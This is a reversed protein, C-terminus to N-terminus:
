ECKELLKEDNGGLACGLAVTDGFEELESFKTTRSLTDIRCFQGLTVALLLSSALGLLVPIHRSATKLRTRLHRVLVRVRLACKKTKEHRHTNSVTSTLSGPSLVALIRRATRALLKVCCVFASSTSLCIYTKLGKQYISCESTYGHLNAYMSSFM